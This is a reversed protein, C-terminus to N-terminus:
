SSKAALILKLLDNIKGSLNAAGGKRDSVQVIVLEHEPLVVIYQGWVGRASYAKGKIKNGLHWQGTSVWWMYGYGIGTGAKSYSATSETIWKEPIIQKDKWKGNRMFLLGFRARDSASMYFPYASHLSAKDKVYKGDAAKFSMNLPRAIKREFASFIKEKTRHEFISGLANFDWNNYYWFKGPEHSGRKPRKEKMRDTEYAAPLYVGSRAKLLDAVTAKKETETLPSKERLNLDKLTESTKLKDPYIGYLASLFSKRVSHCNVKKETDGWSIVAFGRDIVMFATGGNKDWSAKAAKLKEASWGMDQPKKFTWKEGPFEEAYLSFTFIIALLIKM